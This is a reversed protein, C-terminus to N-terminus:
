APQAQRIRRNRAVLAELEAPEVLIRRAGLRVFAVEGAEILRRLHHVSVGLREAAEPLSLLRHERIPEAVTTM